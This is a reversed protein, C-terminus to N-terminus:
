VMERRNAIIISLIFLVVAYVVMVMVGTTFDATYITFGPGEGHPGQFTQSGFISTILDASYTVIFWPEVDVVMLLMSLIPLIMFLTFFSLLTSSITSKLFSSFFFTLGLVSFTYLLALLYSKLVDIPINTIGYIQAIELTTILYFLSVMIGTSILAAIYKSIFISTKRQPTPFTLLGTKKEFEGSIADGAFFAACIIILMTIFGLNNQAFTEPRDAFGLGWIKPIAYFLLPIVTSLIVAIILRKRRM